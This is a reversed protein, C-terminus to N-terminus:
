NMKFDTKMEDVVKQTTEEIKLILLSLEESSMGIGALLEILQLDREVEKIGFYGFTPKVKHALTKFTTFDKKIYAAKMRSVSDPTQEIFVTILKKILAANGRSISQILELSYMKEQMNLYNLKQNVLAIGNKLHIFILLTYM